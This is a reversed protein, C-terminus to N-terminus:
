CGTTATHTLVPQTRVGRLAFTMTVVTADAGERRGRRVAGDVLRTGGVDARGGDLFVREDEGDAILGPPLPENVSTQHADAARQAGHRHQRRSPPAPVVRPRRHRPRRGAAAAADGDVGAEEVRRGVSAETFM